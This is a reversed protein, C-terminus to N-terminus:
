LFLPKGALDSIENTEGILKLIPPAFVYVPVLILAACLLIIWSRQMYVGLMRPKGAGYAQGCLTELASGMGLMIGYALGGIVSNAVAFAALELNGVQGIFTQTSAGLSYQCIITFIVPGAIKWLKKSEVLFQTPLAPSSEHEQLLPSTEM